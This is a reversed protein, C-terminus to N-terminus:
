VYLPGGMQALVSSDEGLFEALHAETLECGSDAMTSLQVVNEMVAEKTTAMSEAITSAVKWLRKQIWIAKQLKQKLADKTKGDKVTRFQNVEFKFGDLDVLFGILHGDTVIEGEEYDNKIELLRSVVDCDDMQVTQLTEDISHATNWLEIQFYVATRLNCLLEARPVSVSKTESKNMNGKKHKSNSSNLELSMWSTKGPEEGSKGDM